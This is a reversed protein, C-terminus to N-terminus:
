EFLKLQLVSDQKSLFISEMPKNYVHETIQEVGKVPDLSNGGLEILMTNGKPPNGFCSPDLVFLPVNMSIAMKAANFTGSMKGKEDREPGSEVVVVAKSLACVLKNRGMANRALWKLSPDFQSVALVQQKWDFQRFARKQHLEMIGYPLVITTTGEAQLSGLHAASDVGKAYGSVVNIGAKALNGALEKTVRVGKDSVSRAGIIAVSDSMLYRLKGKVFLIPSIELLQLPFNPHGPFIIDVEQRKLQEYERAIEEKDELRIKGNLLKALEPSQALLDNQNCPLLEPTLQQKELIKAISSLYKPGIGPTKFLRFWFYHRDIGM